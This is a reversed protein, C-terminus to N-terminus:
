AEEEEDDQLYVYRDRAPQNLVSGGTEISVSEDDCRISGIVKGFIKVEAQAAILDGALMGHIVVASGARAYIHGLCTGYLKLTSGRHVHIDGLVSATIAMPCYVHVDEQAPEDRVQYEVTSEISAKPLIAADEPPDRQARAAEILLAQRNKERTQAMRYSIYLLGALIFGVILVIVVHISELYM